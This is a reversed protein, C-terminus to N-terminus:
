CTLSGTHDSCCSVDSCHCPNWEQGLFKWIGWTHGFFFFFLFLLSAKRWTHGKQICTLIGLMTLASVALRTLARDM